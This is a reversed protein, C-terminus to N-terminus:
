PTSTTWPNLTDSNSSHRLRLTRVNLVRSEHLEDSRCDLILWACTTSSRWPSLVQFLSFRNVPQVSTSRDSVPRSSACAAPLSRFSPPYRRRRRRCTPASARSGSATRSARRARGATSEPSRLRPPQVLPVVARQLSQVLGLGGRLVALLLDLDPPAAVVDRRRRQRDVVRTVRRVIRAIAREIRSSRGDSRTGSPCRRATGAAVPVVLDRRRDAAASRTSMAACPLLRRASTFYRSSMESASMTSSFM